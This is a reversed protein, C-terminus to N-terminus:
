PKTGGLAGAVSSAGMRAAIRACRERQTRLLEEAAEYVYPKLDQSGDPMEHTRYGHALLLSRIEERDLKLDM